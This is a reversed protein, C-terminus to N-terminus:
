LVRQVCATERFSLSFSASLIQNVECILQSNLTTLSTFALFVLTLSLLYPSQPYHDPNSCSYIVWCSFSVWVHWPWVCIWLSLIVYVCARWVVRVSLHWLLGFIWGQILSFIRGVEGVVLCGVVTYRSFLHSCSLMWCLCVVSTLSFHIGPVVSCFLDIFLLMCWWPLFM